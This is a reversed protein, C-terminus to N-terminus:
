FASVNFDPSGGTVVIQMLVNGPGVIISKPLTSINGGEFTHAVGQDDIYQLELTTPLTTGAFLLTMDNRRTKLFGFGEDSALVTGTSTIDPM